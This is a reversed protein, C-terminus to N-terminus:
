GPPKKRARESQRRESIQREFWRREGATAIVALVLQVLAYGFAIVAVLTVVSAVGRATTGWSSKLVAVTGAITVIACSISLITAGAVTMGHATAPLAGEPQTLEPIKEDM